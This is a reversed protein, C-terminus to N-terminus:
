RQFLPLLYKCYMKAGRANLHTTDQTLAYEGNSSFVDKIPQEIGTAENLLRWYLNIVSVNEYSSLQNKLWNFITMYIVYAPPDGTVQHDTDFIAADNVDFFTGRGHPLFVIM